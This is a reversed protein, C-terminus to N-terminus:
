TTKGYSAAINCDLTDYSGRVNLHICTSVYCHPIDHSVMVSFQKRQHWRSLPIWQPLDRSSCWCDTRRNTWKIWWNWITLKYNQIGFTPPLILKRWNWRSMSSEVLSGWWGGTSTLINCVRHTQAGWGIDNDCLISPSQLLSTKLIFTPSRWCWHLIFHELVKRAWLDQDDRKIQEIVYKTTTVDQQTHLQDMFEGSM